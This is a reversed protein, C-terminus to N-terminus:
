LNAELYPCASTALCSRVKNVTEFSTPVNNLNFIERMSLNEDINEYIKKVEEYPWSKTKAPFNIVIPESSYVDNEDLVHMHKTLTIPKFKLSLFEECIEKESKRLRSCDKRQMYFWLMPSKEGQLLNTIQWRQTDPMNNYLTQVEQNEFCLNWGYSNKARSFQDICFTLLELNCATSMQELTEVTYSHEVPQLLADSFAADPESEIARLLDGMLNQEKFGDVLMRALPLEEALNPKEMCGTLMRVALQFSATTLRHFKNYVMLELIGDPKLAKALKDMSIQPDSNHHIVGTCIIYDFSGSYTVENISERKLELNTVGLQQANTRCQELSEKSLDSGIIEADPFKLATFLAQNTGCGAVWIKAGKPIVESKWYGIDQSIMKRWFDQRIVKEFAAPPWPYKIKGYFESNLKDVEHQGVAFQINEGLNKSM